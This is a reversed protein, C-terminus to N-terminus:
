PLTQRSSRRQAAQRAPTRVTPAGADIFDSRAAALADDDPKPKSRVDDAWNTIVSCAEQTPAKADAPIDQMSAEMTTVLAQMSDEMVTETWEGADITGGTHRRSSWRGGATTGGGCGTLLLATAFTAAAM